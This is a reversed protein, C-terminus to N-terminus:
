LSCNKDNPNNEIEGWTFDSYNKLKKSPIIKIILYGISRIIVFILIIWILIDQM